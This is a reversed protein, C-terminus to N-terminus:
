ITGVVTSESTEHLVQITQHGRRIRPERQERVVHDGNSELLISNIRAKILPLFSVARDGADETIDIIGDDEVLM